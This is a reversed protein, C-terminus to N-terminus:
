TSLLVDVSSFMVLTTKEGGGSGVVIVVSPHAHRRLIVINLNHM